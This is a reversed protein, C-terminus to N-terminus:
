NRRRRRRRRRGYHLLLRWRCRANGLSAATVAVGVVGASRAVTVAIDVPPEKIIARRV